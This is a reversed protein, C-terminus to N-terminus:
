VRTARRSLYFATLVVYVVAHACADPITTTSYDHSCYPVPPLPVFGFNTPHMKQTDPQWKGGESKVGFKTPDEIKQDEM